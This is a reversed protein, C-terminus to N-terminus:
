LREFQQPLVSLIVRIGSGVMMLSSVHIMGGSAMERAYKDGNHIISYLVRIKLATLFAPIRAMLPTAAAHILL